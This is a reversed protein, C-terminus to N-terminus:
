LSRNRWNEVGLKDIREFERTNSTVLILGRNLASGAILVDYPGIPTGRIKLTSRIQASVLADDATFPLQHISKFLKELPTKLKKARQKDLFLGYEIEMRTVSSIAIDDPQCALFRSVLPQLGKVFDSIVCTDVLFRM